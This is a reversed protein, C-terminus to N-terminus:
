FGVSTRWISMTMNVIPPKRLWSPVGFWGATMSVEYAPEGMTVLRHFRRKSLRVLVDGHGQHLRRTYPLSSLLHKKKWGGMIELVNVYVRASLPETPLNQNGSFILSKWPRVTFKGSPLMFQSHLHDFVEALLYGNLSTDCRYIPSTSKIWCLWPLRPGQFYIIVM